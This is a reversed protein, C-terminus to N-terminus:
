TWGLHPQTARRADRWPAYVCDTFVSLPEGCEVRAFQKLCSTNFERHQQVYHFEGYHVGNQQMHELFLDYDSLGSYYRPKPPDLCWMLMAVLQMIQAFVLLADNDTLRM